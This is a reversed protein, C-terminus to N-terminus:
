IQDKWGFLEKKQYLHVPIHFVSLMYSEQQPIFENVAEALIQKDLFQATRAKLYVSTAMDYYHTLLFHLKTLMVIPHYFLALKVENV